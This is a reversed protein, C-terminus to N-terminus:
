TRRRVLAIAVILAVALSLLGITFPLALEQAAAQAIVGDPVARPGPEPSAPLAELLPAAFAGWLIALIPAALAPRLRLRRPGREEEGLNLLLVASLLMLGIAGAGVWLVFGPVLPAGLAGAGAAVGVFTTILGGASRTPAEFAIVAAGGFLALLLAAGLFWTSM